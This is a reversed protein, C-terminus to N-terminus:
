AAKRKRPGYLRREKIRGNKGFVLVEAPGSVVWTRRGWDAAMAVAERKTPYILGAFVWGKKVKDWRVRGVVRAPLM